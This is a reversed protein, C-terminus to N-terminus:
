ALVLLALLVEERPNVIFKGGIDFVNVVTDFNGLVAAVYPLQQDRGGPSGQSATWSRNANKVAM